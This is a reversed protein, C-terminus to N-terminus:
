ALRILEAILNKTDILNKVSIFEETSHVNSMGCSITTAEISEPFFHTDAGGRSNKEFYPISLNKCARAFMEKIPSDEKLSFGPYELYENIKVEGSFFNASENIAELMSNVQKKLKEESLSRAELKIKCSKAVVNTASGGEITGVNATTEEDIKLLEMNNIARAAMQIASIGKEPANGAHSAKGIFEVEIIHHYPGRITIIGADGGTDVTFAKKANVKNFDFYRAGLLGVEECITFLVEIDGREESNDIIEKIAEMITAIGSKCDASLITTGDSKIVGDEIIPNIGECPEVTDMHACFLLTNKDSNGKLRGFVNGTNGGVKEGANDIFVEFGLEELDEKILLSFNKENRSKSSVKAYKVFREVVDM